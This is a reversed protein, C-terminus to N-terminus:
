MVKRLNHGLRVIDDPDKLGTPIATCDRCFKDKTRATQGDNFYSVPRRKKCKSCTWKNSAWITM